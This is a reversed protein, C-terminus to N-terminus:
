RRRYLLIFIAVAIMAFLICSVILFAPGRWFPEGPPHQGVVVRTFVRNNSSNADKWRGEEPTEVYVSYVTEEELELPGFRLLSEEAPDLGTINLLFTRTSNSTLNLIVNILEAKVDGDNRAIVIFYKTGPPTENIPSGAWELGIDIYKVVVSINVSTVLDGPKELVSVAGEIGLSLNVRGREDPIWRM